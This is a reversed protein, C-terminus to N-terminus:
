DCFDLHRIIATVDVEDPYVHVIRHVGTRLADVLAVPEPANGMSPVSDELVVLTRMM